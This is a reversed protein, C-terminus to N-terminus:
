DATADSADDGSDITVPSDTSADVPAGGDCPQNVSIPKPAYGDPACM